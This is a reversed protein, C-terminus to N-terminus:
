APGSTNQDADVLVFESGAPTAKRYWFRNTKEIWHPNVDALSILHRLNGPLFQQARQYDALTGQGFLQPLTSCLVFSAILCFRRNLSM